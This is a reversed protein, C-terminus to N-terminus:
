RRPFDRVLIGCPPHQSTFDWRTTYRFGPPLFAAVADDKNSSSCVRDLLVVTALFLM